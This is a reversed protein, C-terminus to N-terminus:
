KGRKGKRKKGKGRAALAKAQMAQKRKAFEVMVQLQHDEELETLFREHVVPNWTHPNEIIEAGLLGQMMWQPISADGLRLAALCGAMACVTDTDGGSSCVDILTAKYSPAKLGHHIAWPVGTLAFGNAANTFPKHSLGSDMGLKVLAAEGQLTMVRCAELILNWVGVPIEDPRQAPEMQNRVADWAERREYETPLHWPYRSARWCALAFIVAGALGLPHTTTEQTVRVVWPILTAPDPLLTAVPGIRMAGGLGATDPPKEESMAKRFNGGTGRHLGFSCLWGRESRPEADALWYCVQRFLYAVEEANLPDEALQWAHLLALAQQGDDTYIGPLRARRPMVGVDVVNNLYRQEQMSLVAMEPAKKHYEFPAGFADGGVLGKLATVTIKPLPDM